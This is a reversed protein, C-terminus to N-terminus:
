DGGSRVLGARDTRGEVTVLAARRGVGAPHGLRNPQEILGGCGFEGPASACRRHSIELDYIKRGVPEFVQSRDRRALSIPQLLPANKVLPEGAAGTRSGQLHEVILYHVPWFMSQRFIRRQTAKRRAVHVDGAM